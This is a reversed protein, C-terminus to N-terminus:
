RSARRRRVRAADFPAVELEMRGAEIKSFDLIDNIITLLAESSTRITAAYDRQEADLESRLLLGSMGIVANMPTRIEHSMAALFASKAQTRRRRRRARRSRRRSAASTSRRRPSRPSPRAMNTNEATYFDAELSDLTWMGILRDGILLPVGMFARVRGGGHADEKFHEFGHPSTRSSSRSANSSWNEPLTAPMAMIAWDFARASLEDLNPFGHGGVIVMEYGDLQQVTAARYPVVKHLEALILDFVEPVRTSSSPSPPPASRRPRSAPPASGRAAARERDRDCCPRRVGYRLEALEETDFDPEFKDISLVGIVRDGVIM